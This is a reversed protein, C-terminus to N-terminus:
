TRLRFIIEFAHSVNPVVDYSGKSRAHARDDRHSMPDYSNNGNFLREYQTKGKHNLENQFVFYSQNEKQEHKQVDPPDLFTGYPQENKQCMYNQIREERINLKIKRKKEPSRFTFSVLSGDVSWRHVKNIAPHSNNLIDKEEVFIFHTPQRYAYILNNQHM